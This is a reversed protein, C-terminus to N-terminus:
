NGIVEYYIDTIKSFDNIDVYVDKGFNMANNMGAAAGQMICMRNEADYMPNCWAHLRDAAVEKQKTDQHTMATKYLKTAERFASRFATLKNTNFVTDCVVDDMIQIDKTLTTSFDLFEDQMTKFFTKSFLKIGGYGYTLGVAPNFARWIHVYKQKHVPPKYDFNFDPRVRADADVVYFFTTNAKKSAALHAKDIGKVNAVRSAYPFREQLKHFNEDAYPEDYSLFIIDLM